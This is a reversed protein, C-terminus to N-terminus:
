EDSLNAIQAQFAREEAEIARMSNEYAIRELRQREADLGAQMAPQVPAITQQQQPVVGPQVVIQGPEVVNGIHQSLDAPANPDGVGSLNTGEPLNDPSGAVYGTGSIVASLDGM